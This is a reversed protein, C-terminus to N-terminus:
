ESHGNVCTIDEWGAINKSQSDKSLCNGFWAPRDGRADNEFKIAFNRLRFGQYNEMRLAHAVAVQRDDASGEHIAPRHDRSGRCPFFGSGFLPDTCLKVGDGM